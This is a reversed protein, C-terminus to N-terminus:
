DLSSLYNTYDDCDKIMLLFGRIELGKDNLEELQNFVILKAQEAVTLSGQSEFRISNVEAIGQPIVPNSFTTSSVDTIVVNTFDDPVKYNSWNKPENWSTEKGPTGGIWKVSIQAISLNVILTLAAILIAKMKM